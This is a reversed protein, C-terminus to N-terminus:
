GRDNKEAQLCRRQIHFTAPLFAIEKLYSVWVKQKFGNINPLEPLIKQNELLYNRFDKLEQNKTLANDIDDFAKLLDPNNLIADKESQIIETLEKETTIQKKDTEANLVLSHKAEFFGNDKLNKAITSANNHNFIGKQFYTSSDVLDNYKEIYGQLKTKFDKTELFAVVKPGFVKSYIIDSFEAETGDNVETKVRGIAKFFDTSYSTFDTSFEDDVGKKLGSKAILEKTLAEKKENINLHIEDYREKLEKNVLLTSLKQSKFTQNYPVIVFIEEAKLEEGNEDTIIRKNARATFISDKSPQSNSFDMFANAFSTKMTGNPAYIAYTSKTEFDFDYKLQKIGYCNEFEIKLKKM